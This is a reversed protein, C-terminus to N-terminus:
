HAGQVLTQWAALLQHWAPRLNQQLSDFSQRLDHGHHTFYWVVFVLLCVGLLGDWLSHWPYTNGYFRPMLGHRVARLPWVVAQYVLVLAIIAAWLPLRIPMWQFVTGTTILSFLALLWAVTVLAAVLGLAAWILGSIFHALPPLPPQPTPPMPSPPVGPWRYAHWHARSRRWEQRWEARAKRWEAKWQARAARSHNHMAAQTAVNALHAAKLKAQEVLVRANFPLGRAAAYEEPTNAYPVIFMMAVYLLVALGGTLVAAIVFLLRVLTVDIDLYVAVGKCVGSILAGDSIQYLRKSAAAGTQAAADTQSADAAAGAPGSGQGAADAPNGEHMAGSGAGADVPGMEQIVQGIESRTVVTKHPNLCRELKDAIAQELDALIEAQDPNGALSRAASDLYEALAAHADDELQYARGNLSVSIVQRM